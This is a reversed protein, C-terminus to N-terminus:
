SAEFSKSPCANDINEWWPSDTTIGSCSSGSNGYSGTYKCPVVALEPFVEAIKQLIKAGVLTNGAPSFHLGDSLFEPWNSEEQLVKWLNLCPLSMDAAVHEVADAYLGANENTRELRGTAEEKFREKQYQLRQAHCVPPPAILLIKAHPARERTIVVIERLNSKYEELPVHQGPNQDEISADNAGLFITVLRTTDDPGADAMIGGGHRLMELCWRSTYGSYGRNLVDARRQYADAIAAGWGQPTFSQQTLSDGFLVIRDRHASGTKIKSTSGGM